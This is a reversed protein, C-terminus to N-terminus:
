KKGCTLCVHTVGYRGEDAWRHGLLWCSPRYLLEIDGETLTTVCRIPLTSLGVSVM